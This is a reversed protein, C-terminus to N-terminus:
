ATRAPATRNIWAAYCSLALAGHHWEQWLGYGVMVSVLWVAGASALGIAQDVNIVARGVSRALTVLTLASLIAGVAGTEIWIHLGANHAHIPLRDIELGRYMVRDDMPRMGDLGHGFLPAANIQELVKGWIELRWGWSVPLANALSDPIAILLAAIFLPAGLVFVATGILLGQLTRTPWRYAAMAVLAALMLALLNAEVGFGSAAAFAMVGLAIAGGQSLRTNRRWLWIMIPGVIMLYASAGRSLTIKAHIAAQTANVAGELELEIWAGILAGTVAEFLFYAGVLSLLIALVRAQQNCEYDTLRVGVYATILFTPTLLILKFVQDNREYESWIASICFWGVTVLAVFVATPTSKFARWGPVLVAPLMMLGTLAVSAALGLGGAAIFVCSLGLLVSLLISASRPAANV